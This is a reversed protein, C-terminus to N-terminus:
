NTQEIVSKGEREGNCEVGVACGCVVEVDEATLDASVEALREDEKEGFGEKPM